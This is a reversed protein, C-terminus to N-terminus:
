HCSVEILGARNTARITAEDGGGVVGDVSRPTVQGDVPCNLGIVGLQVSLDLAAKADAPLEISIDGLDSEFTCEGAPSGEYLIMGIRTTLRVPGAADRVTIAGVDSRVELEGTVQEVVINAARSSLQVGGDLGRVRIEGAGQDLELRSDAPAVIELDLTLNRSSLPHKIKIELGGEVTKVMEVGILSLDRQRAANKTAVVRITGPGGAEVTVEGAFGDITLRPAPGVQFQEEVREHHSAGFRAGEMSLPWTVLGLSLTAAVLAACCCLLVLIAVVVIVVNRERHEM